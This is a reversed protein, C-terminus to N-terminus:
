FHDFTGIKGADLELAVASRQYKKEIENVVAGAAEKQQHFTIIVDAGNEALCLATNRGLGRSGGTILAIRNSLKM